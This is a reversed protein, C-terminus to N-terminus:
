GVFPGADGSDGDETAPGDTGGTGGTVPFPVEGTDIERSGDAWEFDLSSTRDGTRAGMFDRDIDARIHQGIQEHRKSVHGDLITVPLELTTIVSLIEKEVQDRSPGTQIRTGDDVFVTNKTSLFFIHDYRQMWARLEDLSVNIPHGYLAAYCYIDLLNRDAIVVFNPHKPISEIISTEIGTQLTVLAQQFMPTTPDIDPRTELLLRATESLMYFPPYNLYGIRENVRALDEFHESLRTMATTKGVSPAGTLLYWNQNM